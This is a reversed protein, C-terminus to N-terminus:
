KYGIIKTVKMILLQGLGTGCTGDQNINGYRESAGHTVSANSFTLSTYRIQFQNQPTNYGITQITVENTQSTDFKNYFPAYAGYTSTDLYGYIEIYSYNSYDDNLILNGSDGSSNSYLEYPILPIKGGVQLDGGLNEDYDCMIGVGNDALSINPIASPMPTLQITKTSLEDHVTVRFDYSKNLEFTYDQAQSGVQGTFSYTNNTVTPVPTTPSTLWTSSGTEKYEVVVNTISNTVSGFSNNWITGSLTLVANVGVGGNNREVKCNLADIDIPTYVIERTALKTVLTTNIRNDIAYINYIGNPANNTTASLDVSDNYIIDVPNTDGVLYRYKLMTAGKQAIAKNATTITIKINSYGNINVSSDGTLALTTPNVDEFDFDTFIPNANLIRGTIIVENGDSLKTTGASNWSEVAFGLSVTNKQTVEATYRYLEDITAQSLTFTTGSTPYDIRELLEVNPISIRLKYSYTDLYKTYNVSFNGEIDNGTANNTKAYRNITTLQKTGSDSVTGLVQTGTECSWSWNVAKTGDENHQINHFTFSISVSGGISHSVNAGQTQGNCSCSLWASSFWTQYNDASFYINITLSSTNATTNINSESFSTSKTM